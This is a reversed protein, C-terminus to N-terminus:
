PAFTDCHSRVIVAEGTQCTGLLDVVARWLSLLVWAPPVGGEAGAALQGLLKEAARLAARAANSEPPPDKTPGAGAQTATALCLLIAQCCLEQLFTDELFAPPVAALLGELTVAAAHLGQLAAGRM